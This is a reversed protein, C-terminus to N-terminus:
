LERWFFRGESSRGSPDLPWAKTIAGPFPESGDDLAAKRLEPTMTQPRSGYGPCRM